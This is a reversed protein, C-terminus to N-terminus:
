VVGRRSWTYAVDQPASGNNTVQITFGTSTLGATLVAVAADATSTSVDPFEALGLDDHTIAVDVSGGIAVGTETGNGSHTVIKLARAEVADDDLGKGEQIDKIAKGLKVEKTAPSENDLLREERSNLSM